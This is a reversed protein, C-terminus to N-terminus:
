VEGREIRRWAPMRATPHQAMFALAAERNDFTYITYGAEGRGPRVDRFRGTFTDAWELAVPLSYRNANMGLVKLM